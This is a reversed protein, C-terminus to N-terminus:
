GASGHLLLQQLGLHTTLAGLVVTMIMFLLLMYRQINAETGSKLRRIKQFLDSYNTAILEIKTM